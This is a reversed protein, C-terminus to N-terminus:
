KQDLKAYDNIKRVFQLYAYAENLNMNYITNLSLYKMVKNIQYENLSISNGTTIDYGTIVIPGAYISNWEPIIINPEMNNILFEDNVIVDIDDMYPLSTIDILGECFSSITEYTNEIEQIYAKENPKKLIVKIKEKNM